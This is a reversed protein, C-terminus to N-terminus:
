LERIETKLDEIEQMIALEADSKQRSKYKTEIDDIIM